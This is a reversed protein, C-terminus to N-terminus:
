FFRVLFRRHLSFMLLMLTDDYYDVSFDGFANLLAELSEAFERFCNSFDTLSPSSIALSSAYYLSTFERNWDDHVLKCSFMHLNRDDPCLCLANAGFLDRLVCLKRIAINTALIGPGSSGVSRLLFNLRTLQLSLLYESYKDTSCNNFSLSLVCVESKLDMCKRRLMYDVFTYVARWKQEGTSRLTNLLFLAVASSRM